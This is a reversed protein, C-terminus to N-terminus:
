LIVGEAVYFGVTGDCLVVVVPEMIGQWALDQLVYEEVALAEWGGCLFAISDDENLTIHM